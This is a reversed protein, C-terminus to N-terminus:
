ATPEPAGAHGRLRSALRRLQRWANPPPGTNFDDTQPKGIYDANPGRARRLVVPQQVHALLRRDRSPDGAGVTMIPGSAADFCRCVLEIGAIEDVPAGVHDFPGGSTCGYGQAKLAAFLRTRHTREPGTIRFPESHERMKALRAQPLSLACQIAVDEISLDHFGVIDVGLRRATRRLADVVEGYPPGFRVVEYGFEVSAGPVATGFYGEPVYLAAGNECIFPHILEVSRQLCELEARTRTSCLVLPMQRSAVLQRIRGVKEPLDDSRSLLLDVDSFVVSSAEGM